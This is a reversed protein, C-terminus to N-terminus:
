HVYQLQITEATLMASLKAQLASIPARKGKETLNFAIEAPQGNRRYAVYLHGHQSAPRFPTVLM